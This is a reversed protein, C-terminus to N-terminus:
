IDNHVVEGVIQVLEDFVFFDGGGKGFDIEVLDESAEVVEGHQRDGVSVDLRVVNQDVLVFLEHDDRVEPRGFLQDFTVKQM